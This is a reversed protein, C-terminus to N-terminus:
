VQAPALALTPAFVAFTKNAMAGAEASHQDLWDCYKQTTALDAHGLLKQVIRVHTGAQLHMTAFTHRFVHLTWKGYTAKLKGRKVVAKLYRLLHGEPRKTEENPFILGTGRMVRLKVALSDPIRVQREKRGKPKWGWQKKERILLVTCDQILDEWEAHMVEGERCGSYLFFEFLLQEDADCVNFLATLDSATYCRIEQEVYDPADKATVLAIKCFKLFSLLCMFRHFVTRDALGQEQLKGIFTDMIDSRRIDELYTRPCVEIFFELVQKLAQWTKHAKTRKKEALFEVVTAKIHRKGKCSEEPPLVIGADAAQFRINRRDLAKKAAVPDVGVRERQRKGNDDYWEVEFHGGPTEIELGDFLAKTTLVGRSNSVPRLARWGKPTKFIRILWARCM